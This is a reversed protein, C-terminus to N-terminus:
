TNKIKSIICGIILVLVTIIAAFKVELLTLMVTESDPNLFYGTSLGWNAYGSLITSIDIALCFLAVKWFEKRYTVLWIGCIGVLLPGIFAGYFMQCLPLWDHPSFYWFPTMLLSPVLIIAAAVLWRNM